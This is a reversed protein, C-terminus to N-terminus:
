KGPAIRWEKQMKLLFIPFIRCKHQLKCYLGTCVIAADYPVRAGGELLIESSTLSTVFGLAYSVGPSHYHELEIVGGKKTNATEVYRDPNILHGPQLLPM